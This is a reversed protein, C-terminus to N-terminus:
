ANSQESEGGLIRAIADENFVREAQRAAWQEVTWGAPIEDKLLADIIGWSFPPYDLRAGNRQELKHLRDQIQKKM